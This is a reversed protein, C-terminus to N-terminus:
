KKIYPFSTDETRARFHRRNVVINTHTEISAFDRFNAIVTGRKNVMEEWVRQMAQASIKTRVQRILFDQKGIWFTKTEGNELEKPLSMVTLRALNKTPDATKEDLISDDAVEKGNCM